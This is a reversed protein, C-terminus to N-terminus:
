EAAVGNREREEETFRWDYKLTEFDHYWSGQCESELFYQTYIRESLIWTQYTLTGPTFEFVTAQPRKSIRMNKNIFAKSHGTIKSMFEIYRDKTLKINMSEKTLKLNVEGKRRM